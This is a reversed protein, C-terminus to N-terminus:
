ELQVGFARYFSDTATRIAPREAPTVAGDELVQRLQEDWEDRAAQFTAREAKAKISPRAVVLEKRLAELRSADLHEQRVAKRLAHLRDAVNLRDTEAHLRCFHARLADLDRLATSGNGSMPKSDPSGDSKSGDSALTAPTGPNPRLSQGAKVSAAYLHRLWASWNKSKAFRKPATVAAESYTCRVITLFAEQFEHCAEEQKGEEVFRM